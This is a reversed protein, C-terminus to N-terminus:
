VKTIFKMLIKKMLIIILISAKETSTQQEIKENLNDTLYELSKKSFNLDKPYPLKWEHYIQNGSTIIDKVEHSILYVTCNV